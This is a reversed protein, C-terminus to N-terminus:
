VPCVKFFMKWFLSAKLLFKKISIVDENQLCSEHCYLEILIQATVACHIKGIIYAKNM